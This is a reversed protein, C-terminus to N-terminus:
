INLSIPNHCSAMVKDIGLIKRFVPGCTERFIRQLLRRSVDKPHFEQYLLIMKKTDKPDEM